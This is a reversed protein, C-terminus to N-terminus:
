ISAPLIELKHGAQTVYCSGTEFLGTCAFLTLFQYIDYPQQILIFSMIYDECPEILAKEYILLKYVYACM